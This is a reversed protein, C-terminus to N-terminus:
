RIKRFRQAMDASCNPALGGTLKRSRISKRASGKRSLLSAHPWVWNLLSANISSLRAWIPSGLKQPQETTRVFWENSAAIRSSFEIGIAISAGGSERNFAKKAM